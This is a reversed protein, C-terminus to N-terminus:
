MLSIPMISKPYNSLNKGTGDSRLLHWCGNSQQGITDCGSTTECTEAVSMYQSTSICPGGEVFGYTESVPSIEQLAKPYNSPTKGTGGSKLLHWCGNSQQGIYDCDPNARCMNGVKLADNHCEGSQLYSFSSPTPTSSPGPSRSPGPSSPGTSSSEDGGMMLAVAGVSSSMMMLVVVGIIAAQSM